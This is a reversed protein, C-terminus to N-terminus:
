SKANEFPEIKGCLQQISSKMEDALEEKLTGAVIVFNKPKKAPLFSPNKLLSIFRIAEEQRDLPLGSLEKFANELAKKRSTSM